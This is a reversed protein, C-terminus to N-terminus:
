VSCPSAASRTSQIGFMSQQRCDASLPSHHAIPQAAPRAATSDHPCRHRSRAHSRRLRAAPQSPYRAQSGPLPLACKPLGTRRCRQHHAEGSRYRRFFGTGPNRWAGGTVSSRERSTLADRVPRESRKGQDGRIVMRASDIDPVTLRVAESIRLGAAYCTTLIAHHKRGHVCGLFQLVEEPGKLIVPLTQPKELYRSSM